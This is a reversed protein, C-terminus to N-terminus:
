LYKKVGIDQQNQLYTKLKIVFLKTALFTILSFILLYFAIVDVLFYQLLNLHRDNIKLHDFNGYKILLELWYIAEDFGSRQDSRWM